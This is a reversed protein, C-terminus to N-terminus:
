GFLGKSGKIDLDSTDALDTYLKKEAKSLKKPVIVRIEIFHDGKKSRGPSTVGRGSLKFTTHSQTGAPIKLTTEGEVTQVQIEDGLVAQVVHIYEVTHIHNGRRVFFDDEKVQVHIFLDGAPGGNLGGEGKGALRITSGNDVGAPIKVSLKENKQVRSSGKCTECVKEPIEGAGQCSDCPAVTNVQGLITNQVKRVQGSGSCASCMKMKSGPAVRRGNCTECQIPKTIELERTTGNIAEKFNLHVIAEIDNGRMPGSRSRRGGGQRAGGFFSEFIDSFGGIDSFDFGQGFNVNGSFGGPGGAGGRFSSGFTDYQQRKQKDSLVEYAETADKFRQEAGKDDPNKDPHNKQAIRRYAKKIESDSSGKDVGLIKYYDKAM